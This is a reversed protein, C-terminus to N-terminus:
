TARSAERTQKARAPLRLGFARRARSSPPRYADGSPERRASSEAGFSLPLNIEAAKYLCAAALGGIRPCSRLPSQWLLKLALRPVSRFAGFLCVPKRKSEYDGETSGYASSSRKLSIETHRLSSRALKPSPYRAFLDTARWSAFSRDIARCSCSVRVSPSVRSV